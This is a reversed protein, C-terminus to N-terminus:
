KDLEPFNEQPKASFGTRTFPDRTKRPMPKRSSPAEFWFVLAELGLRPAPCPNFFIEHAKDGIGACQRGKALGEGFIGEDSDIRFKEALRSKPWLDAHDLKGAVIVGESNVGDGFIQVERRKELQHGIGVDDLHKVGRPLIEFDDPM